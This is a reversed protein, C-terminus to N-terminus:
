ADAALEMAEQEDESEDDESVVDKVVEAKTDMVVSGGSTAELVEEPVEEPVEVVKPGEELEKQKQFEALEDIEKMLGPLFENEKFLKEKEEATILNPKKGFIMDIEEAKFPKILEALYKTAYHILVKLDLYNVAKIIEYMAELASGPDLKLTEFFNIDSPSMPSIRRFVTNRSTIDGKNYLDVFGEDFPHLKTYDIIHKFHKSQIGNIPVATTDDDMDDIINKITKSLHTPFDFTSGDDLIVKIYKIEVEIPGENEELMRKKNSDEVSLPTEEAAVEDNGSSEASEVTSMKITNSVCVCM